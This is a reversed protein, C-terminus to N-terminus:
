LLCIHGLGACGLIKTTICGTNRIARRGGFFDLGSLQIAVEEAV